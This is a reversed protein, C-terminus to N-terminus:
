LHIILASHAQGCLLRNRGAEQEPAFLNWLTYCSGRHFVVLKYASREWVFQGAIIGVNSPVGCRGFGTIPTEQRYVKVGTGRLINFPGM